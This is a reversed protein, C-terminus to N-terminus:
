LNLSIVPITKILFFLKTQFFFIDDRKRERVNVAFLLMFAFFVTIAPKLLGTVALVAQAMVHVM